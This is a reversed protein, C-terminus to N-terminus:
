IEDFQNSLEDIQTVLAWEANYQRTRVFDLSMEALMRDWLILLHVDVFVGLGPPSGKQLDILTPQLDTRVTAFANQLRQVEAEVETEGILYHKVDMAAPALLHARGIAIGRSVPIGHLTFSAM